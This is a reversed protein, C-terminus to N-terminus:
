PPPGDAQRRQAQLPAKMQFGLRRGCRKAGSGQRRFRRRLGWARRGLLLLSCHWAARVCPPQLPRWARPSLTQARVFRRAGDCCTLPPPLRCLICQHYPVWSPSNERCGRGHLQVASPACQHRRLSCPLAACGNSHRTQLQSQSMQATRLDISGAQM